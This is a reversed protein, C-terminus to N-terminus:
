RIDLAKLLGVHICINERPNLKKNNSSYSFVQHNSGRVVNGIVNFHYLLKLVENAGLKYSDSVDNKFEADYLKRFEDQSFIYKRHEALMDLIEQINELISYTEDIIEGRLYESHGENARKIMAGSVFDVGDNLALKACERIYSVFDRPRGYTFRRVYTFADETKRHRRDHRVADSFYKGWIKEFDQPSANADLARTLRYAVLKKISSLNWDLVIARDLWKNKDPDRCLDFIDDRLFVLPVVNHTEGLSRRVNQVAKLLGILLDFYKEKRDPRLVGKYDEDLADFLIYYSRKSINQSIYKKLIENRQSIELFANKDKAGGVGGGLGLINLSFSRDSIKQISNSLANEIDIDFFGRLQRRRLEDVTNDEIMMCCITCYIVYEWVSIYQNPSTYSNDDLSYLQNFPFNKFSLLKAVGINKSKNRIYEAIATKGTGKRGIVVNRKGGEILSVDEFHYFYRAIDEDLAEIPWSSIEKFFDRPQSM